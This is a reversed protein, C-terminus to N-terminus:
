LRAEFAYYFLVPIPLEYDLLHDLLRLGLQFLSLDCRETRHIFTNLGKALTQVGLFVIWIYALCAAIMLRFLRKPDSLHSKHLYFGRSKQDSFFTEIRFRKRYWDCAQQASEVNTVLYIPEKYGKEWWLIAHVPGYAKLTFFVGPLSVPKHGQPVFIEGYSLKKDAKFLVSSKGTRCAYQWGYGHVTDLLKIGDFEGDGLLVVQAGSPIIQHLQEILQLHIEEKLHGKKGRIVIWAIPLARGKYVVSAMLTVCGKGVVSGDIVVFLTTQALSTLLTTVFPLFYLKADIGENTIWRYLQKIRSEPKNGDPIKSAIQPLNVKRSGVIGSILAALVNLRRAINGQPEKPYLHKLADRIAKYTRMNDSM